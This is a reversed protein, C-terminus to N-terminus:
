VQDANKDEGVKPVCKYCIPARLLGCPYQVITWNGKGYKEDCCKIFNEYMEMQLHYVYVLTSIALVIGVIVEITKHKM